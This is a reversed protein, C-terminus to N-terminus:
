ESEILQVESNFERIRRVAPAPPIGTWRSSHVVRDIGRALKILAPPVNTCATNVRVVKTEGNLTVGVTFSPKDIGQPRCTPSALTYQNGLSFFSAQQVLSLLARRATDPLRIKVTGQHRVNNVGVYQVQNKQVMLAYYPCHDNCGGRRLFLKFGVLNDSVAALAATVSSPARQKIRSSTSWHEGIQILAFIAVAAALAILFFHLSGDRRYNKGGPQKKM